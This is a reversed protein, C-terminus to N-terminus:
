SVCMHACVCVCVFRRVAWRHLFISGMYDTLTTFHEWQKNRSPGTLHFQHGDTIHDTIASQGILDFLKKRRQYSLFSQVLSHFTLCSTCMSGSRCDGLGTETTSRHSRNRRRSILTYHKKHENQSRYLQYETM